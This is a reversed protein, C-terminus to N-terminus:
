REGDLADRVGRLLSVRTFPKDLLHLRSGVLGYNAIVNSTYGSVFLVRMDPRRGSLRDALEKGSMRPMVVDTLLLHITDRHSDALALAEPGDRASLVRYGAASLLESVLDRLGDQDEVVLVTETAAVAEEALPPAELPPDAAGTRLPLHITFTTGQGLATEVWIFGSSQKVIGYVTALGLGSGAGEPKTTFFPEFVRQRVLEDMGVGTDTVRLQVYAGPALPAHTRAYDADLQVVSTVLTLTGGGPMADRANVGLNFLVQSMQGPDVKVLAPDASLHM